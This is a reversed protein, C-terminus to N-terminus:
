EHRSSNLPISFYFCAGKDVAGEAWVKGKHRFIIRQVIALGVGTGEFETPKHLRQFVGFLQDAYKMDFGAGNDKVFYVVQSGKEEAGVEVQPSAKRASYKVANTLLNIWVQRLLRYDGCCPPVQHIKWSVKLGEETAKLEQVVSELVGDMDVDGRQIERKGLKSLSLLNDILEGMDKANGNIIHLLRKVEEDTDQDHEELLIQSYGNIARLPARLDHSVSYTFSELEKNLFKLEENKAELDNNLKKLEAEHQHIKIFLKVNNILIEPQFPKTLFSIAGKEYGQFVHFQDTYIGSIFIFPLHATSEEQRLIEALEYGDMGPMQIDLLALSFDHNLTEKLADNGSSAKILEVDLDKLVRELAVLNEVKDDVLLIKPKNEMMM